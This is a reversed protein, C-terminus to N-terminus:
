THGKRSPPSSASIPTGTLCSGSPHHSWLINRPSPSVISAAIRLATAAAFPSLAHSAGLLAHLAHGLRDVFDIGAEVGVVPHVPLWGIEVTIVKFIVPPLDGPFLCAGRQLRHLSLRQLVHQLRGVNGVHVQHPTACPIVLPLPSRKQVPILYHARFACPEALAGRNVLRDSI